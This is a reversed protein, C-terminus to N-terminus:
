EGLAAADNGFLEELMDRDSDPHIADPAGQCHRIWRRGAAERHDIQLRSSFETQSRPDIYGSEHTSYAGTNSPM